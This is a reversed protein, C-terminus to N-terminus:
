VPADPLDQSTSRLLEIARVLDAEQRALAWGCYLRKGTDGPGVFYGYMLDGFPSITLIIVGSAHAGSRVSKWQGTIYRHDYINAIVVYDDNPPNHKNRLRLRGWHYDVLVDDRIWHKDSRFDPRYLSSWNGILRTRNHDGILIPLTTFAVSLLAGILAGTLTWALQALM